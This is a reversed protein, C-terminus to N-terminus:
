RKITIFFVYLYMFENLHMSHIYTYCKSQRCYNPNALPETILVSKPRWDPNDKALKGFIYDFIHEQYIPHTVVNREFQNKVLLRMADVDIEDGIQFANENILAPTEKKKDKRPKAVLNRFEMLPKDSDSYGIRCKYSGLFLRFADKFVTYM